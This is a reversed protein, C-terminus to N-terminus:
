EAPEVYTISSVSVWHVDQSTGMTTTALIATNTTTIYILLQGFCWGTPNPSLHTALNRPRNEKSGVLCFGRKPGEEEVYDSIGEFTKNEREM